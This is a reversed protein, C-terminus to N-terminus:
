ASDATRELVLTYHFARDVSYSKLTYTDDCSGPGNLVFQLLARAGEGSRVISDIVTGGGPFDPTIPGVKMSGEAFGGVAIEEDSMTRVKPNNGNAETIACRDVQEVGEGPETGSWSRIVAEVSWPRMGLEGPIARVEHCIARVDDRFSM